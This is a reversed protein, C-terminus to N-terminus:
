RRVRILVLDAVNTDTSGTRLLDGSASLFGFSDSHALRECADLGHARSRELTRPDVLAGAADTPGDSGDSAACLALWGSEDELELALRVALELM